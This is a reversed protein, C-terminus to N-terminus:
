GRRESETTNAEKTTPRSCYTLLYHDAIVRFRKDFWDYTKYRPRFTIRYICRIPRWTRAESGNGDDKWNLM